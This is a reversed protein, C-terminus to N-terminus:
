SYVKIFWTAIPVSGEFEESSYECKVVGCNPPVEVGAFERIFNGHCVICITEEKKHNNLVNAIAEFNERCKTHQEHFTMTLEVEPDWFESANELIDLNTFREEGGPLADLPLRMGFHTGPLFGSRLDGLLRGLSEPHGWPLERAHICIEIPIHTKAFIFSATELARFMPSVYVKDFTMDSIFKRTIIAQKVGLKTLQPDWCIDNVHQKFAELQCLQSFTQHNVISFLKNTESEGHRILVVKVM